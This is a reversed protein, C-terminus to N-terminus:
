QDRYGRRRLAAIVNAVPLGMVNDRASDVHTIFGGGLGQIGYGGAKDFPEGTAVYTAIEDDGLARFTVRSEVPESELVRGDHAIAFATIVIHVNGSLMRLMRAAEAPNAPKELVVEDCVVITDAGIVLAGRHVTSVAVAKDAALRLAYDRASEGAGRTESVGSEIAVFHVGAKSLLDRRRPSGSALIVTQTM